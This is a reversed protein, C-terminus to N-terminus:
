LATFALQLILQRQQQEGSPPAVVSGSGTQTPSRSFSYLYFNKRRYPLIYFLMGDSYQHLPQFAM